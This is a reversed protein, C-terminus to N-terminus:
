AVNTKDKKLLKLSGSIDKNAKRDILDNLTQDNQPNIGLKPINSYSIFIDADDRYKELAVDISEYRENIILNELLENIKM